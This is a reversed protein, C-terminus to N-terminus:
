ERVGKNSYARAFLIAECEDEPADLQYIKKVLRIAEKKMNARKGNKIGVRKRWESAKVVNVIYGKEILCIELVGALKALIELTRTNQQYQVGEIFVFTPQHTTCLHMCQKVIKAIRENTNGKPRLVGSQVITATDHDM